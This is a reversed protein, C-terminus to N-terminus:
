RKATSNIVFVFFMYLSKKYGLKATKGYNTRGVSVMHNTLWEDLTSKILQMQPLETNSAYAAKMYVIFDGRAIYDFSQGAMSLYYELISSIFQKVSEHSETAIIDYILNELKQYSTDSRTIAYKIFRTDFERNLLSLYVKTTLREIVFSNNDLERFEEPDNSETDANLYRGESHNKYFANAIKKMKGKLRTWEADIVYTIDTDDCRAIRSQYTDFCGIANDNIFEYVSNMSKIKFSNDLHALTYDMIQRNVNYKYFGKHLSTYMMLSMYTMIYKAEKEKKMQQLYNMTLLCASYFPNSHNKNSKNIYKSAKIAEMMADESVGIAEYIVARDADSFSYRRSMDLTLLIESNQDIYSSIRDMLKTIVAPTLSRKITDQFVDRLM